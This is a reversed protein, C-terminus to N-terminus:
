PDNIVTLSELAEQESDQRDDREDASDSTVTLDALAEALLGSDTFAVGCPFAM